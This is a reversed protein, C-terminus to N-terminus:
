GAFALAQTLDALLDAINEIGVSLRLLGPDVALPSAAVSAHTMRHPHEILSEVAGLSEALTFLRTRRAVELAAPEGGALIFSVMGGYDRMQKTALAHGPHDPLGPYLVQSVAPHDVLHSVIAAANACHRDMRVALTKAGRLVLFCDFPSPVAGVSNQVFALREAVAPDSTAAFGGVVDSHGGLYKTTSHVVIDAGHRLPQQLYPTAFTNDVVLRGGHDHAAAALGAIDILGLLPNSPTETWIMKTNPQWAAAVADLDALDVPSYDIGLPAYIKDILRFTGGYADLPIILHDGPALLHLIADIAGMGSSFALGHVAGELAALCVELAHRTPNGTRAYDFIPFEGVASQAFTTALSIPVVVAGSTPEADQGAHIALTEFGFAEPGGHGDGAVSTAHLGAAASEGSM